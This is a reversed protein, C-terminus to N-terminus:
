DAGKEKRTAHLTYADGVIGDGVQSLQAYNFKCGGVITQDGAPHPLQRGPYGVPLPLRSLCIGSVHNVNMTGVDKRETPSFGGTHPELLAPDEGRRTSHLGSQCCNERQHM